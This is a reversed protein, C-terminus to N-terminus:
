RPRPFRTGASAAAFNGFVLGAYNVFRALRDGVVRALTAVRPVLPRKLPAVRAGIERARPGSLRVISVAGRGPPTALAAITETLSSNM